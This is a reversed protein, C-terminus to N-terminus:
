VTEPADGGAGVREFYELVFALLTTGLLGSMFALAVILSKKPKVPRESVTPPKVLNTAKLQSLTLRLNDIRLDAGLAEAELQKLKEQLSNLYIQQNQIENSYLLVSMADTRSSAMAKKRSVDLDKIKGTIDAIQNSTLAIQDILVNNKIEELRIGNNMKQKEIEVKENVAATVQKLLEDLVMSGQQPTSTEIAIKVLTTEKPVTVKFRRPYESPNLNLIKRVNNDYAEGLINEKIEEPTVIAQSISNKEPNSIKGPEIIASVEYVKPLLLSVGAAALTLLLTGLLIHKKRKGLIRILDILEIEQEQM